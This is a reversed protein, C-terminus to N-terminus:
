DDRREAPTTLRAQPIQTSIRVAQHEFTLMGARHSAPNYCVGWYM